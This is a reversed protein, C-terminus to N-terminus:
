VREDYIKTLTHLYEDRDVSKSIDDVSLIIFEDNDKADDFDFQVETVLNIGKKEFYIKNSKKNGVVKSINSNTTKIVVSKKDYKRKSYDKRVKGSTNTDEESIKMGNGDIQRVKESKKGDIRYKESDEKNYGDNIVDLISNEKLFFEIYDRIMRSEVMEGFAPHFPGDVISGGSLEDTAQLGVRIVQIGNSEFMAVLKKVIDIAEDLTQPRYQGDNYMKELESDRITLTPYIRVIDPHIKVFERATYLSKCEDDGPLGTMLQLGLKFGYDRIMKASKYVCESDHGRNSRELVEHDMSQVGLEIISTSYKKHISLIDDNICDPRTSLRIDQIKGLDKYKKAVSLLEIQKDLDIATFSGGFFAVEKNSKDDMTELYEKIIREVDDATVDTSVGTIKVQNCFVCDNPCGQHPVFIPIIKNKM